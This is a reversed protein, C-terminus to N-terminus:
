FGGMIGIMAATGITSFLSSKYAARNQSLAQKGAEKSQEFDM